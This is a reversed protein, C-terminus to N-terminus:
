FFFFFLDRTIYCVGMYGGGMYRDRKKNVFLIDCFCGFAKKWEM